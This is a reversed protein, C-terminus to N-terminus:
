YAVLLYLKLLLFDFGSNHLSLCTITFDLFNTFVLYSQTLM